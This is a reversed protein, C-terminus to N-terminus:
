PRGSPDLRHAAVAKSWTETVGPRAYTETFPGATRSQVGRARPSGLLGAAELVAEAIDDPIPDHGHDYVVIVSRYKLPWGAARKLMGDASWEFDTVEEADITVDHVALVPAAPLLLTTSGTGDLTVVDQTVGSVVHGVAGRFRASARDALWIVTPDDAPLGLAVGLDALSCLPPAM